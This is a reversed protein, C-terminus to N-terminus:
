GLLDVIRKVQDRGLTDVLPKIAELADILKANGALAAKPTSDGEGAQESTTRPKRGPRGKSQRVGQSKLQSKTASFHQKGIEIGFARRIYDTGSGPSEHGEALARRIAEIKTMGPEAAAFGHGEQGGGEQEQEPEQPRADESQTRRSASRKAM